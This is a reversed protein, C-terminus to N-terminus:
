FSWDTSFVIKENDRYELSSYLNKATKFRFGAQFIIKDEFRNEWKEDIMYNCELILALKDKLHQYFTYNTLGLVIKRKDGYFSFYSYHFNPATINGSIFPSYDAEINKFETTMKNAFGVFGFSISTKYVAGANPLIQYKLAIDQTFDDDAFKTFSSLELQWYRFGYYFSEMAFPYIELGLSFKHNQNTLEGNWFSLCKEPPKCSLFDSYEQKYKAIIIKRQRNKEANLEFKDIKQILKHKTESLKLKFYEHASRLEEQKSAEQHKNDAIVKQLDRELEEIYMKHYEDKKYQILSYFKENENHRETINTGLLKVNTTVESESIFKEWLKGNKEITVQEIISKVIVELNKAFSERALKDADNQSAGVGIGFYYKKANKIPKGMETREVWRPKVAFLLSSCLLLIIMIKRKM